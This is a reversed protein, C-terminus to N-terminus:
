SKSKTIVSDIIKEIEKENVKDADVKVVIVEEQKVQGDENNKILDPNNSTSLNEADGEDSVPKVSTIKGALKGKAKGSLNKKAFLEENNNQLNANSAATVIVSRNPKQSVQTNTKKGKQINSLQNNRNTSNIADPESLNNNIDVANSKINEKAPDDNKLTAIKQQNNNKNLIFYSVVSGGILLPLLWWLWFAVPRRSDTEKDLMAEMKKWSKEDFAPENAEAANKIIQEIDEFSKKSM